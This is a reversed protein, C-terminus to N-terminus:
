SARAFIYIYIYLSMEGEKKSKVRAAGANISIPRLIRRVNRRSFRRSEDRERLLYKLIRSAVRAVRSFAFGFFHVVVITPLRAFLDVIAVIANSILTGLVLANNERASRIFRMRGFKRGRSAYLRAHLSYRM